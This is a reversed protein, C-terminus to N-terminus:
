MNFTVKVKYTHQELEILGAVGIEYTKEGEEKKSKEESEAAFNATIQKRRCGIKLLKKTM